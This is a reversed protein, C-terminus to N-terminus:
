TAKITSSSTTSSRTTPTRWSKTSGFCACRAPAILRAPERPAASLKASIGHPPSAKAMRHVPSCWRIGRANAGVPWPPKDSYSVELYIADMESRLRVTGSSKLSGQYPGTVNTIGYEARLDPPSQAIVLFAGPSLTTGSPFDFDVEGRIQFGTLDEVFPASNYLEIFELKRGDTRAAPKYMIESIVLGTKRSSPGLPEWPFNVPGSISGVSMEAAVASSLLCSALAALWIVPWGDSSRTAQRIQMKVAVM